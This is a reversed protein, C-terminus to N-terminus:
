KEQDDRKTGIELVAIGRRMLRGTFDRTLTLAEFYSLRHEDQLCAAAQDVTVPKERFLRLFALGIGDIIWDHHDRLPFFRGYLRAAAGHRLKVRIRCYEANEEMIQAERNFCILANRLQHPTLPATRNTM